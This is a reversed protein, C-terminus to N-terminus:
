SVCLLWQPFIFSGTLVLTNGGETEGSLCIIYGGITSIFLCILAIRGMIRHAKPNKARISSFFQLAGLVLWIAGPYGHFYFGVQGWFKPYAKALLSVPPMSFMFGVYVTAFFISVILAIWRPTM